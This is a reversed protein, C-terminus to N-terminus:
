PVMSYSIISYPEQDTSIVWKATATAPRPGDTSKGSELAKQEDPSLRNSSTIEFASSGVTVQGTINDLDALNSESLGPTFHSIFDSVNLFPVDGQRMKTIRRAEFKEILGSMGGTAESGSGPDLGLLAYKSCTNLNLKGYSHVLASTTEETEDSDARGGNRLRDLQERFRRIREAGDMEAPDTDNSEAVALTSPAALTFIDVLRLDLNTPYPDTDKPMEEPLTLAATQSPYVKQSGEGSDAYGTSLSFLQSIKTFTTNGDQWATRAQSNGLASGSILLPTADAIKWGRVLPDPRQFSQKSDVSNGAGYAFYDVIRGQPNYLTVQSNRDPLDLSNDTIVQKSSGDPIAGFISALSGEGVPTDPMPSDLNDTIVLVGGAPLTATLPIRSSGAKVSWGVLSISQNWPNSIELFQGDDGYQVSTKSDPYVETIMPVMEVGITKGTSAMTEGIIEVKKGTSDLVTPEDDEDAFDAVNAAFQLLLAREKHPFAKKLRNFVDEPDIPASLSIKPVHGGDPLNYVEPAQSFVTVFNELKDIEQQSFLPQGSGPDLRLQALNELLIANPDRPDLSQNGPSYPSASASRTRSAQNLSDGRLAMIARTKQLTDGSPLVAHMIRQLAAESDVANLNVLGSLDRVHVVAQPGSKLEGDGNRRLRIGAQNLEALQGSTLARASNDGKVLSEVATPVVSWAQLPSTVGQSAQNLLPAVLPLGSSASMRAQELEAYNSSAQTELRTGYSFAIALLLLISLMALVLLITSGRQANGAPLAQATKDTRKIDLDM